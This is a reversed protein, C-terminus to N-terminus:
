LSCAWLVDWSTGAQKGGPAQKSGIRKKIYIHIYTCIYIHIYIYMYIYIYIYIHHNYPCGQLHSGAMYLYICM